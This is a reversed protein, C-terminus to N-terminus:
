VGDAVCDVVRLKANRKCSAAIRKRHLPLTISVCSCAPSNLSGYLEKPSACHRLNGYFCSHSGTFKRVHLLIVADCHGLGRKCIKEASCCGPWNACVM